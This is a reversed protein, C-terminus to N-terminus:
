VLGYDTAVAPHASRVRHVFADWDSVALDAARTLDLEQRPNFWVASMGAAKAGAVDTDLRDGMFWIDEPRVGLRVAATEFLLVHPKRVAYDSSVMVFSLHESLGHKGLEYRIVQESFSTNSVVATPVALRHFEELAERAGPMPATQVSARWFGMELEAMPADFRVGLFDHILKALAPWATELYARDRLSAAEMAVRNARELVHELTVHPPRYAAHALLWENGARLDISVEEVLTWGYDFLLGRPARMSDRKIGAIKVLQNVGLKEGLLHNQGKRGVVCVAAVRV